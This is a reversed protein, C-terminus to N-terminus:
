LDVSLYVFLLITCHILWSHRYIYMVDGSFVELVIPSHRTVAQIIILAILVSFGLGVFQPAGYALVVDGNGSCMQPGGLFASRSMDQLM